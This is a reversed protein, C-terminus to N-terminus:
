CPANKRQKQEKKITSSILEEPLQHETGLDILANSPASYHYEIM